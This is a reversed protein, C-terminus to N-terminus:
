RKIPPDKLYKRIQLLIVRIIHIYVMIHKNSNSDLDHPVFLFVIGGMLKSNNVKM